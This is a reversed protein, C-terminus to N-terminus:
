FISGRRTAPCRSSGTDRQAAALGIRTLLFWTTTAATKLGCACNSKALALGAVRRRRKCRPLDCGRRGCGDPLVERLRRGSGRVIGRGQPVLELRISRRPSGSRGRLRLAQAAGPGMQVVRQEARRGPASLLDRLALGGPEAARALVDPPTNWVTRTFTREPESAIKKIFEELRV